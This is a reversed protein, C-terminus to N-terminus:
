DSKLAHDAPKIGKTYGNFGYMTPRYPGVYRVDAKAPVELDLTWYVANVLLRRLDECQLDTSSGMTTTVIRNVNGAENQHNRLWVVPQMPDNKEGKVPPDSPKMGALVQGWVLVKVDSPPNATYVDTDGFIDKVGRLIPHDKRSPEIIGRTAEHKHHGHHAVWTEGLVQRGFGGPWEESRWDYKAYPSQKNKRYAFAHTSTRLAIIPKGSLYYDVFHKMRDDPLERFRLLMVCLDAKDLAELGPMNAPNNPDIEGTDPNVAFVVTCKYGHRQALIKGLMPLGEESRYEEDGSLLVVHKGNGPGPQGEHVVWDGTKGTSIVGLIALAWLTAPLKMM